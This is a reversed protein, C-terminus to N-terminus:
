ACATKWGSPVHSITQERRAFMSKKTNKGRGRGRDNRREKEREDEKEGEGERERVRERERERGCWRVVLVDLTGRVSDLVTNAYGIRKKHREIIMMRVDDSLEETRVM